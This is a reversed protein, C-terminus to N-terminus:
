FIEPEGGSVDTYIEVRHEKKSQRTPAISIEYFSFPLSQKVPDDPDAPTFFTV